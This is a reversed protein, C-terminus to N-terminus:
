PTATQTFSRKIFSAGPWPNQNQDGIRPRCQRSEIVQNQLRDALAQQPTTQVEAAPTITNNAPSWFRIYAAGPCYQNRLELQMM